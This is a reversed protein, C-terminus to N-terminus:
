KNWIGKANKNIIKYYQIPSWIASFIGLICTSIIVGPVGVKIAFIYSLPINLLAGFLASYFQLKVKGIGNLFYSFISCWTNIIVYIALSLSLFFPITVSNGIWIAFVKNAFLLMLMTVIILLMWILIVKKVSNKIWAIDDKIYAETYASWLPSIIINFVMTVIGFYKFGINFPTVEKPGFIQSIVINDTQYIALAAVQIIFFKAGLGFLGRAYSFKVFKLSPACFKYRTRYLWISSIILILVPSAGLALALYFLNGNTTKTLIFIICLSTLNALLNLFSAKAPKQDASLITTILQFIFQLCFFIFVILAVITLEEKMTAPTNLISAWNLNPNIVLFSILLLSIVISLIAYTTSVYIRAEQVKNSAIAEAFKNRLGNGFGIDFFSFWGIISSLTLWIGYRTPNIYSITLPVLLLNTLISVGRIFFSGLINKKANLSRENGKTFFSIAKIRIASYM